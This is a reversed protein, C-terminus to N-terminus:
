RGRLLPEHPNLRRARALANARQGGETALALRYWVLWDSPDRVVARRLTRRAREEDGSRFEAAGLVGLPEASWPLLREALRADELAAPVDGEALHDRGHTLARNGVLSVLAFAALALTVALAGGRVGLGLRWSRGPVALLLSAACLLAVLTVGVLEWDWDVAAHVAYAAYAGTAAPVVGRSRGRWAAALPLALTVVLVLLGVAGLEALVELYLNHADRIDITEPRDRLWAVEFTGAGAGVLPHEQAVDWAVRWGLSRGTGSLSFLRDNLDREVVPPAAVFADRARGAAAAPGGLAVLVVAAAGVAAAALVINGRALVAESPHVRARLRDVLLALGAQLLGLALLVLALRHGDRSADELPSRVHTLADHRSSIVVAAAPIISLPLARALLGLRRPDLMLAAALGVALAIWGGRSFTFYLVAAVPVFTTAALTRVAVSSGRAALGLGLVLLMAALLGLGNWYGVPESLRYGAFPDYSGLREPFLRTALAYMAVLTGGALTGAVIAPARLRSGALAITGAFALYVVDREVERITRPPSESWAASVAVWALFATMGVLFAIPLPSITLRDSTVLLTAAGWLLVVAIWGWSREFYGADSVNVAAVLSACALATIAVPV